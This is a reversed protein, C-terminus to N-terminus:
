ASARKIHENINHTLRNVASRIAESVASQGVAALIYDLHNHIAATAGGMLKHFFGQVYQRPDRREGRTRKWSLDGSPTAFLGQMAWGWSKKALGRRPIGGHQQLLERREAAVSGGVMRGGKARHRDTYVYHLKTYEAPTGRKRTLSWRRLLRRHASNSHIYKPPTEARHAEIEGARARKPATPTRKRLSQCIYVAARRTEEQLRQPAERAIRGLMDELAKVSAQDVEATVSVM